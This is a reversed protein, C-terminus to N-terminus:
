ENDHVNPTPTGTIGSTLVENNFNGEVVNRHIHVGDYAGAGSQSIANWNSAANTGTCNIYNNDVLVGSGSTGVTFGIVQNFYGSPINRGIIITNDTVRVRTASRVQVFRPIATAANAYMTNNSIVIDSSATAATTRIISRTPTADGSADLCDIFTNGTITVRKMYGGSFTNDIVGSSASPFAGSVTNGSIVVDEIGVGTGRIFTENNVSVNGTISGLQTTGSLECFYMSNNYITNGTIAFRKLNGTTIGRRGQGTVTNGSVVIDSCGTPEIPITMALVDFYNNLIKVGTHVDQASAFVQLAVPGQTTADGINRFTCNSITIDKSGATGQLSLAFASTGLIDYFHCDNVLVTELIGGGRIGYMVSNKFHVREVRYRKTGTAGLWLARVGSVNNCDLVLDTLSLDSAEMRLMHTGTTMAGNKLITNVGDGRTPATVQVVSDLKYTGKPIYVSGGAASAAAYTATIAPSDNAVGDGVAGGYTKVNFENSTFRNEISQLWAAPVVNRVTFGSSHAVPTTSEAGRTVSWTTGSVNTVKILEAPAAPDAVYFQSAPLATSSAAPFSSSSAVTWTQTTGAAPADTGGSSVTTSGQNTFLEKAM